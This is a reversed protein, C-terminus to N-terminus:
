ATSGASHASRARRSHPGWPMSPMPSPNTGFFRSTESSVPTIVVVVDVAPDGVVDAVDGVLPMGPRRAALEHRREATHACVPGLEALGRAVLRDLQGLYAGLVNGAGVFGVVPRETKM